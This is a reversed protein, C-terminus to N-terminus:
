IDWSFTHYNTFGDGASLRGSLHTLLAGPLLCAFRMGRVTPDEIQHQGTDLFEPNTQGPGLDDLELDELGDLFQIKKHLPPDVYSM